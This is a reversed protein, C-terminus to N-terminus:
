PEPSLAWGRAQLWHFFRPSIPHRKLWEVFAYRVEIPPPEGARWATAAPQGDGSPHWDASASWDVPWDSLAADREAMTGDPVGAGVPAITVGGAADVLCLPPFLVCWWNQGQAVGLSIRLAEYKGAPLATDGYVKTPFAFRGVEVKVGYSQGAGRVVQTAARRVDEQRALAIAKAQAADKAKQLEPTLLNLVADRVQRKVAQDEATDSNAVVHLRLLNDYNAPPAAGLSHAM